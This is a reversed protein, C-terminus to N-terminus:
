PLVIKEQRAALYLCACAISEPNYRMFVDSRLSDNMFNWATQVFHKRKIMDLVKCYMFLYKHPHKVHVCFGLEKLIRREGKIVQNKLNIYHQDLPLPHINRENRVQKIHHFVNIVDRNRRPCEEIKSALMISAMAVVEGM